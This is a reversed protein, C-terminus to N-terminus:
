ALISGGSGGGGSPPPTSPGNIINGAVTSTCFVMVSICRSDELAGTSGQVAFVSLKTTTRYSTRGPVGGAILNNDGDIPSYGNPTGCSGSFAYANNPLATNFNIEYSGTATKTVSAVNSSSFMTQAGLGGSGDFCVWAKCVGDQTGLLTSALTQWNNTDTVPNGTNDDTKSIYAVGAVQAWSGIYYTTSADWEPLGAQFVYALQRSLVYLVANMDQLAPSALGGPANILAGGFGQLWNATQIEAPDLSYGPSGAKLSGFKAINSPAALSGGFIKQLARTIKSM